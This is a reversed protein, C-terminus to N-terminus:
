GNFAADGDRGRVAHLPLVLGISRVLGVLFCDCRGSNNRTCVRRASTVGTPPNRYKVVGETVFARSRVSSTGTSNEIFQYRECNSRWVRRDLVM